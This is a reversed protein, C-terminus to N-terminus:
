EEFVIQLDQNDKKYISPKEELIERFIRYDNPSNQKFTEYGKIILKCPFTIKRGTGYIGGVDLYSLSDNFADWHNVGVLSGDKHIGFDLIKNFRKSVEEENKLDTIDITIEM